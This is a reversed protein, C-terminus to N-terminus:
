SSFSLSSLSPYWCTGTCEAGAYGSDCLCVYSEELARCQGQGSCSINMCTVVGVDCLTGTFGPDCECRFGGAQDVGQNVCTGHSCNPPCSSGACDVASSCFDRIDCQDGTFGPKCRCIYESGQIVCTEAMGCESQSCVDVDCTLGTYGPNCRCVAAAGSSTRNDCTGNGCRLNHCPDLIACSDGMVGENCVCVWGVCEGMNCEMSSCPDVPIECRLGIYGDNCTCNRHICTGQDCVCPGRCKDGISGEKCMVQYTLDISAIGHEGSYSGNISIGPRTSAAIDITFREILGDFVENDYEFV